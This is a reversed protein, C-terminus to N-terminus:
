FKVPSLIYLPFWLVQIFGVCVHLYMQSHLSPAM